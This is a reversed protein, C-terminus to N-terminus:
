DEVKFARAGLVGDETCTRVTFKRSLRKNGIASCLRKCAREGAVFFSEGKLMTSLPYVTRNHKVHESVRVPLSINTDVTINM